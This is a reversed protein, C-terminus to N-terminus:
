PWSYLLVNGVNFMDYAPYSLDSRGLILVHDGYRVTSWVDTVDLDPGSAGLGRRSLRACPICSSNLVDAFILDLLHNAAQLRSILDKHV